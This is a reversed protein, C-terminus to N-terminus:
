FLATLLATVEKIAIFFYNFVPGFVDNLIDWFTQQTDEVENGDTLLWVQAAYFPNATGIMLGDETSAFTRLGHNYPDNFGNTTITEFHVGDETVYLDFGRDANKMYGACELFGELTNRLSVLALDTQSASKANFISSGYNQSTVMSVIEEVSYNNLLYKVNSVDENEEVSMAATETGSNQLSIFTKVFGILRVWEAPTMSLLNGNAFQGIPELLSSTDFTGVYLKGEHEEMRWIYQNENRGFGSGLGSIGGDPFMETADGMILEINENKDMRYLSVSQELNKNMFTFDADFLIEELPIEEDNYEGIYLYDNYVYIVGAGARTREPDIGFTYKAGDAKDGIVPTWTWDSFSEGMDGRVIAFSQMTHEDPKNDPTGTCISVYLSGNYEVMEWISGGYISDPFHYAPYDFLAEQDAIVTFAEQGASPNSSILIQPGSLTVMSVVLYDGFACLGRIGTCIGELYAAYYDKKNIGEYVITCKDGDNPDVEIIKPLGNVSGCFYLKDNFECANRLQVSNGDHSASMLVTVENTKVNIKTLVGGTNAGDPEGTYFHGNYFVDLTANMVAPDFDNGLVSDMFGLTLGLSNYNTSVYVCDGYAVAAWAYNQGRDGQGEDSASVAGNGIYDVIGDVEGSGKDPHSIKTAEYEGSKYTRQAGAAFPTAAFSFLMAAALVLSLLKKKM